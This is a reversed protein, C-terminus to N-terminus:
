FHIGWGRITNSVGGEQVTMHLAPLEQTSVAESRCCLKLWEAPDKLNGNQHRGPSMKLFLCGFLPEATKYMTALRKPHTVARADAVVALPM